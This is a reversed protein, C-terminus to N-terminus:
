TSIINQFSRAEMTIPIAVPQNKISPNTRAHRIRNSILMSVSVDDICEVCVEEV